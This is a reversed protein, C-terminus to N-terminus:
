VLGQLLIVCFLNDKPKIQTPPHLDPSVRFKEWIVNQPYNQWGASLNIKFLRHMVSATANAYCGLMPHLARTLCVSYGPVLKLTRSAQHCLSIYRNPDPAALLLIRVLLLKLLYPNEFYAVSAELYTTTPMSEMTWSGDFVYSRGRQEVMRLMSAKVKM